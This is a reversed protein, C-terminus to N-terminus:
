AILSSLLISIIIPRTVFYAMELYNFESPCVYIKCVVASRIGAPMDDTPVSRVWILRLIATAFAMSLVNLSRHIIDNYKYRMMMM